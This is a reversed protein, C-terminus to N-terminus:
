PPGRHADPLAGLPVTLVDLQRAEILALLLALPGDFAPLTVRTASEPRRGDGFEIAPTRMLLGRGGRPVRGWVPRGPTRGPLARSRGRVGAIRGGPRPGRIRRRP